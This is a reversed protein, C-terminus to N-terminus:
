HCFRYVSRLHIKLFKKQFLILWCFDIYVNPFVKSITILKDTFPFGIHFIDFNVDKFEMFVPILLEPDSNSLYNGSGAQIGTHVQVPLNYKEAFKIIKYIIYDQFPKRERFFIAEPEIFNKYLKDFKTNLIKIFAKEADSKSVMDINLTRFYAIALKVGVAKSNLFFNFRKELIEEFNKLSHIAINEKEEIENLMKVSNVNIFNDFRMVPSFFNNDILSFSTYSEREVELLDLICTKIKCMDKLIKKYYGSKNKENLLENIEELNKENLEDINFLDKMIIKIARGYTTNDVKPWYNKFISWKKKFDNNEDSLLCFDKYTMGSSILDNYLYTLLSFFDLKNNYEDKGKWFHM